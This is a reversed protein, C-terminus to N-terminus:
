APSAGAVVYSHAVLEQQQAVDLSNAHPKDDLRISRRGLSQTSATADRSSDFRSLSRADGTGQHVSRSSLVRASLSSAVSLFRVEGSVRCPATGPSGIASANAGGLPSSGWGSSTSAGREM